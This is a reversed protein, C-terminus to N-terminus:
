WCLHSSQRDPSLRLAPSRWSREYVCGSPKGPRLRMLVLSEPCSMQLWTQHACADLSRAPHASRGASVRAWSARKVWSGPLKVIRSPSTILRQWSGDSGSGCSTIGIGIGGNGDSGDSGCSGASGDNLMESGASGSGCSTIGIGIGGSGDSGDKGCSGASGDNFIENGDSGNGCSTIGIGM